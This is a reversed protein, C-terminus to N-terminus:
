AGASTVSGASSPSSQITSTAPRTQGCGAGTPGVFESRLRALSALWRGAEAPTNVALTGKRASPSVFIRVDAEDLRDFAELDPEDDGLAVTLTPNQERRLTALVDAKRTPRVSWEVVGRGLHRTLGTFSAAAKHALDIAIAAPDPDSLRVNIAASVTKREVFAGPLVSVIGDLVAALADLTQCDSEALPAIVGPWEAGYSGILTVGPIAPCVAKLSVLDRGSLIVVTTGPSAALATIGAVADAVIRAEAPREVLPSLTGDFDSAILLRQTRALRRSADDLNEPGTM